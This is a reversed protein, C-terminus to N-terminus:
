GQPLWAGVLWLVPEVMVQNLEEPCRTDNPPKLTPLVTVTFLAEFPPQDKGLGPKLITRMKKICRFFINHAIICLHSAFYPPTPRFMDCGPWHEVCFCAYKRLPVGLHITVCSDRCPTPSCESFGKQQRSRSHSLLVDNMIFYWVYSLIGLDGFIWSWTIISLPALDLDGVGWVM